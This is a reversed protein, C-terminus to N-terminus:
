FSYFDQKARLLSDASKPGREAVFELIKGKANLPTQPTDMYRRIFVPDSGSDNVKISRVIKSLLHVDVGFVKHMDEKSAKATFNNSGSSGRFVERLMSRLIRVLYLRTELVSVPRGVRTFTHEHITRLWIPDGDFRLQVSNRVPSQRFERNIQTHALSNCHLFEPGWFDGVSIVSYNDKKVKLGLEAHPYYFVGENSEFVCPRGDCSELYDAGAQSLARFFDKHLADDADLRTTIVFDGLTIGESTLLSPVDPTMQFSEFPDHLILKGSPLTSLIKEMRTLFKKPAKIDTVLLLEFNRDTQRLLSPIFLKEFLDFRANFFGPLAQGMGFRTILFNRM